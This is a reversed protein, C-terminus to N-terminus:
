AAPKRNPNPLFVPRLGPSLKVSKGRVKDQSCRSCVPSGIKVWEDLHPMEMFIIRPKVWGHTRCLHSVIRGRGTTLAVKEEDSLKNWEKDSYEGENSVTRKAMEKECFIHRQAIPRGCRPCIEKM